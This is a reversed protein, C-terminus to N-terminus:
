YTLDVTKLTGRWFPYIEGKAARAIEFEYPLMIGDVDRYDGRSTHEGSGHYPTTLDGDKEADFALLSGDDGFTAVLSAQMGDAQVTARAHSDDVAEWTVPGGPLMAAPYMPSELLWRQLSTVNLEPTEKEDVVTLTSEIKAKMEMKGDGFADYARAWIGPGMDVRASFVFAPTRTAAIQEATTPNFDEKLPQRFDGEMTFETISPLNDYGGPFTFEAWRQVPEPLDAIAATDVTVAGADAALDAVRDRHGSIDRETSWSFGGITLGVVAVLAGCTILTGRLIRRGRPKPTRTTTSV